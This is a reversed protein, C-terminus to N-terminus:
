SLYKREIEEMPVFASDPAGLAEEIRKKAWPTLEKDGAHLASKLAALENKIFKLDQQIEKLESSAMHDETPNQLIFVKRNEQARHDTGQPRLLM